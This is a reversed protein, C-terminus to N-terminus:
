WGPPALYNEARSAVMLSSSIKTDNVIASESSALFLFLAVSIMVWPTIITFSRKTKDPVELPM